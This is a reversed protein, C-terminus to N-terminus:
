YIFITVHKSNHDWLQDLKDKVADLAIQLNALKGQVDATLNSLSEKYEKLDSGLQTIIKTDNAVQNELALIAAELVEIKQRLEHNSGQKSSRSNSSSIPKFSESSAGSFLRSLVEMLITKTSSVEMILSCCLVITLAITM